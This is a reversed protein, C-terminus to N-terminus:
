EPYKWNQWPKYPPTCNLKFGPTNKNMHYVVNVMNEYYNKDLPIDNQKLVTRNYLLEGVCDIAAYDFSPMMKNFMLNPYRAVTPLDEVGLVCIAHRLNNSACDSARGRWHSMRTVFDTLKGQKLCEDTFHGPMELFDSAQLTEGFQEDVGFPGTNLNNIFTSMDMKRVMWDVADRSFSAQAAGKAFKLTTELQGPKAESENRFMKLSKPDWKLKKDIRGNEPTIEVDNAGGLISYIEVLQYISKIVIDHNQLLMVYGWGPKNILAKMCNYHALNVNHGKSDVSKEDPLLLINPLCSALSRMKSHFEPSSKQDIAFCFVNQPHYSFRVFNELMEYDTYVVRAFAVGFKLPELGVPPIVRETIAECSMDLNKSEIMKPRNTGNFQKMYEKDNAYLRACDIHVTEPRKRYQLKKKQKANVSITRFDSQLDNILTNREKVEIQLNEIIREYIGQSMPKVSEERQVISMYILVIVAFVLFGFLYNYFSLSSCDLLRYRVKSKMIQYTPNPLTSQRRLIRRKKSNKASETSLNTASASIRHKSFPSLLHSPISISDRAASFLDGGLIMRSNRRNLHVHLPKPSSNRGRPLTTYSDDLSMGMSNRCVREEQAVAELFQKQRESNVTGWVSKFLYIFIELLTVTSMGLFLGMSGAISSLLDAAQMQKQQEHREYSIHQFFISASSLNSRIYDHSMGFKREPLESFTSITDFELLDCESFCECNIDKVIERCKYLELPTCYHTETLNKLKSFYKFPICNCKSWVHELECEMECHPLTYKIDLHPTKNFNQQCFGWNTQDLLSINKLDISAHIWEGPPVAISNKAIQPFKGNEHILIQFGTEIERDGRTNQNRGDLLFEWGNGEGSYIQRFSGNGNHFRFCFGFDTFEPIALECCNELKKKAFSCEIITEECIKSYNKFFSALDFSIGTELRFKKLFELFEREMKPNQPSLDEMNTYFDLIYNLVTKSYSQPIRLLDLPNHNCITVEPFVIGNKPVITTIQFLTPKSHYGLLLYGSHIMFLSLCSLVVVTWFIRSPWTNSNYIRVLGHYTTLGSFEKTEYDYIKLYIRENTPFDSM